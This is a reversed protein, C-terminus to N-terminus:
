VPFTTNTQTSSNNDINQITKCDINQRTLTLPLQKPLFHRWLWTIYVIMSAPDIVETGSTVVCTIFYPCQWLCVLKHKSRVHILLLNGVGRGGLLLGSTCNLTFFVRIFYYGLCFKHDRRFYQFTTPIIHQQWFYKNRICESHQCNWVLTVFM